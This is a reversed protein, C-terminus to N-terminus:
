QWRQLVPELLLAQHDLGPPPLPLATGPEISTYRVGSWQRGDGVITGEVQFSTAPGPALPAPEPGYLIELLARQHHAVPLGDTPLIGLVTAREVRASKKTHWDLFERHYALSVFSRRSPYGVVGVRDWVPNSAIVNADLCLAAGVSALLPLPAYDTVPEGVRFKTLSLMYVPGDVHEAAERLRIAYDYDIEGYTPV